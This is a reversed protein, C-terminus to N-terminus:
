PAPQLVADLAAAASAIFVEREEGILPRDRILREVLFGIYVAALVRARVPACEGGLWDRIPALFREQMALNLLPATTPSTAARLLFKFRLTRDEDVHTDDAMMTAIDRSFTERNWDRAANGSFSDNLAAAFLAEKGGFYRKILSVDAGAETAIDRLAACEYGLRAFHIKAAGLIALRTAEADRKRPASPATRLTASEGM